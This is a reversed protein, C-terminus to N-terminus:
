FAILLLGTSIIIMAMLLTSKSRRFKLLVFLGLIVYLGGGIMNWKWSVIALILMFTGQVFHSLAAQWGESSFELMFLYCFGAMGFTIIRLILRVIEGLIM